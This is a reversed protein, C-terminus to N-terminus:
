LRDFVEKSQNIDGFEEDICSTCGKYRKYGTLDFIGQFIGVMSVLSPNKVVTEIAAYSGAHKTILAIKGNTTYREQILFELCQKVDRE